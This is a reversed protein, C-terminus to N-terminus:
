DGFTRALAAKLERQEDPKASRSLRDALAVFRERDRKRQHEESPRAGQSSAVRAPLSVSQRMPKAPAQM